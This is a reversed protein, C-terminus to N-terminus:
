GHSSDDLTGLLDRTEALLLVAQEHQPVLTSAREAHSQAEDWLARVVHKQGDLIRLLKGQNVLVLAKMIHVSAADSVRSLEEDYAAVAHSFARQAEEFRSMNALL